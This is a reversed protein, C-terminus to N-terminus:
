HAQSAAAKRRAPAPASPPLVHGVAGNEAKYMWGGGPNPAFWATREQARAFVQDWTTHLTTGDSFHVIAPQDKGPLDPKRGFYSFLAAALLLIAVATFVKALRMGM